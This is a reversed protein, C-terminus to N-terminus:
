HTESGARVGAGVYLQFTAWYHPNRYRDGHLLGLKSMRLAAMPSEGHEIRGYFEDMQQPTPADTVEWLAAVVNHAGARLFAWSLGVLGEGSYSPGKAGYCAAVTVLEARLPREVIDRAYLKFSDRDASSQSLVIASDLPSLRSAIGHTVFHIYAYNEPHGDLYTVTTAEAGTLVKREAGVFHAKVIDMQARAKPLAPYKEPPLPDGVLLLSRESKARAPAKAWADLMRLSSANALTVDDIWYHLKTSSVLLTEFNLNNLQGDPLIYVKTNKGVLSQAPMILMQYLLRGNEDAAELVDPGDDIAQRYRQVAAEIEAGPPLDFRATKQPTIAWLYSQKRGLWYFLLTGGVKRATEEAVLTPPEASTRKRPLVALGELLTRARSYDAWRLAADSRGRGILFHVYDDYIRAANASFPLATDARKLSPRAAEFTALAARYTKDASEAQGREEYLRALAHESRWKLSPKVEPDREVERFVGEAKKDDHRQAAVLGEVLLPYLEDLRNDDAKAIALAQEAYSYAQEFEGSEVSVLALARLANFTQRASSIGRALALTEEYARKAQAFDNREAYVYGANNLFSSQNIVDGVRTALNVADLSLDLSKDADGLNYYAWGLNGEATQAIDGADIARSKQYASDTWGVAEDFHEERLAALGLNLLATAELFGDSRERAFALSQAFFEKAAERQGREVALVGKARIVNGCADVNAGHCLEDANGLAAEAEGFHSLHAQAVGELALREISLAEEGAVRLRAEPELLSVADQSKGRWLLAEAELTRFKLAWVPDSRVFRQYGVEAENQAQLLNGRRFTQRANEFERQADALRHCSVGCALALFIALCEWLRIRPGAVIDGSAARDSRLGFGGEGRGTFSEGPCGGDDRKRAWRGSKCQAGPHAPLMRGQWM